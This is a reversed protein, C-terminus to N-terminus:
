DPFYSPPIPQKWYPTFDVREPPVVATPQLALAAFVQARLRSDLFRVLIAPRALPRSRHHEKTQM